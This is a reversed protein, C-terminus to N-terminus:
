GPPPSLRDGAAVIWSADDVTGSSRTSAAPVVFTLSEVHWVMECDAALVHRRGRDRAHSPVASVLYGDALVAGVPFYHGRSMTILHTLSTNM